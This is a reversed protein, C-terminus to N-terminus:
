QVLLKKYDLNAFNGSSMLLVTKKRINRMKALSNKLDERSKVFVIDKDDFAKIIEERTIPLMKKLKLTSENVFVVKNKIAKLAKKYQKLFEKNLSSFTHLELYVVLNKKGYKEIVADVTARVKSPSHAFDKFITVDEAEYIKELRNAAGKFTSIQALFEDERISLLQCVEWAAALNEINHKGFVQIKGSNKNIKVEYSSDPLKKYSFAKYPYLLMDDERHNEEVLKKVQKDAINYLVMAAKPLDKVLDRFANQYAEETPYLNVHDWAIGNIVVVHPEYAKFKPIKNTPSSFYEDGELIIFPASDSIKISEEFGEVQAGVLYDFEYNLGSLVHMIMSTVTTKGHSGTIVIRQKNKSHELIFEPYSQTKIGLENTRILEPNDEKAHMGVIVLDIDSTINEANWAINQPLLGNKDLKSRSPEFIEDDSGSVEHGLKKLAIALSHMVSGGIAILHIRM